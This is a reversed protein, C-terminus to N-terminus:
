LRQLKIIMSYLCLSFGPVAQFIKFVTCFFESSYILIYINSCIGLHKWKPPAKTEKPFDLFSPYNICEYDLQPEHCTVIFKPELSSFKCFGWSALSSFYEPSENESVSRFQKREQSLVQPYFRSSEERWSIILFLCLASDRCIYVGGCM